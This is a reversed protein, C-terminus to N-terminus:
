TTKIDKHIVNYKNTIIIKQTILKSITKKTYYTIKNNHVQKLIYHFHEITLKTKL